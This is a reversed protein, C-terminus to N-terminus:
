LGARPRHRRASDPGTTSSGADVAWGGRYQIPDDPSPTTASSPESSPPAPFALLGRRDQTMVLCAEAGACPMVCDFLRLPEAIPRANLYQEMTLPRKMMAHPVALANERQAICLRGFDERRAGFERMYRDTLFAFSANPGGAGYPYVATTPSSASPRSPAASATSTTTDAGILAVIEADGAQM